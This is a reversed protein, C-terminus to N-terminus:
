GSSKSQRKVRSVTPKIQCVMRSSAFGCDSTASSPVGDKAAITSGHFSSPETVRRAFGFM